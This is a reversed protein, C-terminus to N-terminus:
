VLCLAIIYLNMGLLQNGKQSENNECMDSAKHFALINKGLKQTKKM